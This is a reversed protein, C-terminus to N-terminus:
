GYAKGLDVVRRQTNVELAATYLDFVEAPNWDDFLEMVQEATMEPEVCSAAILAPAFTEVDYPAKQGYQRQHEENQEDTPPHDHILADYRKRGISRFKLSVTQEELKERAAERAASVVSLDDDRADAAEFDEVAKEYAEVLDPDLPVHVIKEIPKKKRLHDFTAPRNKTDPM